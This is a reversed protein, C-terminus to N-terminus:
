NENDGGGQTNDNLFRMIDARRYRVSHGIKVYPLNITKKCRRVALAGVSTRLLAATEAPTLLEKENQEMKPGKTTNRYM